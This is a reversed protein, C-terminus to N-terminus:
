CILFESASTLRKLCTIFKRLEAERQHVVPLFRGRPRMKWWRKLVRRHKSIVLPKSGFFFFATRQKKRLSAGAFNQFM